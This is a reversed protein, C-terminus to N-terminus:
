ETRNWVSALPYVTMDARTDGGISYVATGNSTQDPFILVTGSIEGDNGLVEVSNRDVFIHLTIWGGVGRTISSPYVGPFAENPSRGSRSRDIALQGQAPLYKIVTEQGNAGMRLKLGMESVSAGPRFRAILEYQDSCFAQLPNEGGDRLTLDTLKVVASDRLAEYEAIPKQYLRVGNPTQRLSLEMQLTFSGNFPDTIESLQNSYAWNNAWNIMIRRGDVHDYTQAAYSDPAFNMTFHENSDPVFTWKGHIQKFDGIMYFRGCGNLVWKRRSTGEVTLSFFDPCETEIIDVTKGEMVQPADYRSELTWSKLDPSSFIRLRGGAAAMMWQGSEKHWFVKPDRFQTTYLSGGPNPIVPNGAYKIWTRGHDKSYALGQQQTGQGQYTFVAALGSQEPTDSFFGTTNHEDVVACGSFINGLEDPYLAIPLEEWHLLDKSAAHGWHMPGWIKAGPNYQYFLHYEGQYYVMGNPDNLWHKKPSYHYQPRFPECYATNKSDM